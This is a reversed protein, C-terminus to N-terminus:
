NNKKLPLVKVTNVFAPIFSCISLCFPSFLICAVYVKYAWPIIVDVSRNITRNTHPSLEGPGYVTFCSVDYECKKMFSLRGTETLCFLNREGSFIMDFCSYQFLHVCLFPEMKNDQFM